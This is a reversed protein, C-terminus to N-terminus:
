ATEAYAGQCLTCNERMAALDAETVFHRRCIVVIKLKGAHGMRRLTGVSIEDHLLKAAEALTLLRLSM